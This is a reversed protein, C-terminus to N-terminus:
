TGPLNKLEEGLHSRDALAKLLPGHVGFDVISVSGVPCGLRFACLSLWGGDQRYLPNSEPISM